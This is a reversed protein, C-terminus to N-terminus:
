KIKNKADTRVIPQTRASAGSRGRVTFVRGRTFGRGRPLHPRARVDPRFPRGSPLKRGIEDKIVDRGHPHQHQYELPHPASIATAASSSVTIVTLTSTNTNSRTLPVSRRRPPPARRRCAPAPIRTPAERASSMGKRGRREPQHGRESRSRRKRVFRWIQKKAM